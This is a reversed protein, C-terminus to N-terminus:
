LQAKVEANGTSAWMLALASLHHGGMHGDLGTSEWNGYPAVVPPRGASASSPRSCAREPDLAMLYCWTPKSRTM